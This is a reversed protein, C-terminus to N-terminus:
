FLPAVKFKLMSVRSYCEAAQRLVANPLGSRLKYKGADNYFSRSNESRVDATPGIDYWREWDATCPYEPRLYHDKALRGEVELSLFPMEQETLYGRVGGFYSDMVVYGQGSMQQRFTDRRQTTFFQAFRYHMIAMPLSNAVAVGILLGAVIATVPRRKFPFVALALLGLAGVEWVFGIYRAWWGYPNCIAAIVTAVAVAPLLPERRGVRLLLCAGLLFVASFLPGLGGVRGDSIALYEWEAKKASLPAKLHAGTGASFAVYESRSFLSYFFKYIRNHGVFNAPLHQSYIGEEVGETILRAKGTGFGEIWRHASMPYNLNGYRAFNSVYPNFQFFVAVFLAAAVLQGTLRFMSPIGRRSAEYILLIPGIGAILFLNTFKSWGALSSALLFVYKSRADGQKAFDLAAFIVISAFAATYGDSYNILYQTVTIPNLVAVTAIALSSKVGVSFSRRACLYASLFLAPLLYIPIFKAAEIQGLAKAVVAGVSWGFKPLTNLWVAWSTDWIDPSIAERFPNWGLTLQLIAEQHYQPGDASYDLFQRSILACTLSWLIPLLGSFVISIRDRRFVIAQTLLFILAIAWFHGPTIVLGGWFGIATLAYLFFLFLLLGSSFRGLRQEDCM